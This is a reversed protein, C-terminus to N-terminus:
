GFHGFAAAGRSANAAVKHDLPHVTIGFGEALHATFAGHPVTTSVKGLFGMLKNVQTITGVEM